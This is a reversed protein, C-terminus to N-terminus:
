ESATVPPRGPRASVDAYLYRGIVVTTGRGPASDVAFIHCFRRMIPLGRGREATADAPDCDVIASPDFGVGRDRVTAVIRDSSVRVEIDIPGTAGSHEIANALAEGLAALLPELTEQPVGHRDAFEAVGDRVVRSLRAQPPVLFDLVADHTPM